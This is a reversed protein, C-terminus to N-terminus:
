QSQGTHIPSGQARQLGMLLEWPSWFPTQRSPGKTWHKGQNYMRTAGPNCAFPQCCGWTFGTGQGAQISGTRPLWGPPCKAVHGGSSFTDGQFHVTGPLMSGWSSPLAPLSSHFLTVETSILAPQLIASIVPGTESPKTCPTCHLPSSPQTPSM